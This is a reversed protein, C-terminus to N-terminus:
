KIKSLRVLFRAAYVEVLLLIGTGSFCFFVPAAMTSVEDGVATAAVLGVCHGCRHHRLASVVAGHVEGM